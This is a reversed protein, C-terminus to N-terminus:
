EWRQRGDSDEMGLLVFGDSKFGRQCKKSTQCCAIQLLSRAASPLEMMLQRRQQGAGAWARADSCHPSSM